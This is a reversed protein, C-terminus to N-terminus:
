IAELDLHGTLRPSYATAAFTRLTHRLASSIRGQRGRGSPLLAGDGNVTNSRSEDLYRHGTTRFLRSRVGSCRGTWNGRFSSQPQRSKAVPPLVKWQGVAVPERVAEAAVFPKYFNQRIARGLSDIMGPGIVLVYRQGVQLPPGLERNPGAWRKLRGPDLLGTAGGPRAADLPFAARLLAAPKGAASRRVSFHRM